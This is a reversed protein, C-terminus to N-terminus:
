FQIPVFNIPILSPLNPNEGPPVPVPPVYTYGWEGLEVKANLVPDEGPFLTCYAAPTVLAAATLQSLDIPFVVTDDPDDSDPDDQEIFIAAGFYNDLVSRYAKKAQELANQSGGDECGGKTYLEHLADAALFQNEGVDSRRALATAWFYYRSIAYSELPNGLTQDSPIVDVQDFKTEQDEPGDEVFELIVTTRFPNDVNDLVCPEMFIGEEECQLSLRTTTPLETENLVKGDNKDPGGGGGCGTVALALLGCLLFLPMGSIGARVQESYLKRMM